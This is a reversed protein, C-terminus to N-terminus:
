KFASQRAVGLRKLGYYLAVVALVIGVVDALWDFWDAQRGPLWLQHVEDAGAVLAALLAAWALAHHAQLARRGHLLHADLLAVGLLGALMGFVVAHALKDWPAAFLGVAVPQAGGVFLGVVLVLAALACLPRLWHPMPNINFM